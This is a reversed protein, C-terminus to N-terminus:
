FAGTLRAICVGFSKPSMCLNVHTQIRYKPSICAPWFFSPHALSHMVLRCPGAVPQTRDQGADESLSHLFSSRKCVRLPLFYLLTDVAEMERQNLERPPLLRMWRRDLWIRWLRWGGYCWPGSHLFHFGQQICQGPAQSSSHWWPELCCDRFEGQDAATIAAPRCRPCAQSLLVLWQWPREPWFALSTVSDAM